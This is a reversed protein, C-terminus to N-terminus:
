RATAANGALLRDREARGSAGAVFRAALVLAGTGLLLKKGRVGSLLGILLTVVVAWGWTSSPTEPYARRPRPRLAGGSHRLALEREEAKRRDLGQQRREDAQRKANAQQESQAKGRLQEGLSATLPQPRNGENAM